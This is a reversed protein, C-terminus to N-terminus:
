RWLLHLGQRHTGEMGRRGQAVIVNNTSQEFRAVVDVCSVIAVMSGQKQRCPVAMESRDLEEPRCSRMERWVFHLQGM